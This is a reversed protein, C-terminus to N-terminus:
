DPIILEISDMMKKVEKQYQDFQDKLATFQLNLVFNNVYYIRHIHKLQREAKPKTEYTLEYYKHGKSEGGRSSLKDFDEGLEVMVATMFADLDKGEWYTGNLNLNNRFEEDSDEYLIFWTGHMGSQDAKWNKPHQIVYNEDKLQVWDSQSFSNEAFFILFFLATITLRM